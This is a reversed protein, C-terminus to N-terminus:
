ELKGTWVSVSQHTAAALELMSLLVHSSLDDRLNVHGRCHRGFDAVEADIPITDMLSTKVSQTVAFICVSFKALLTPASM